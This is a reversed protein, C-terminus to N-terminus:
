ALECYIILYILTSLISCLKLQIIESFINKWYKAILIRESDSRKHDKDM